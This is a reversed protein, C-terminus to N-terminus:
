PLHMFNAIFQWFHSLNTYWGAINKHLLTALSREVEVKPEKKDDIHELAEQLYPGFRGPDEALMKSVYYAASHGSKRFEQASALHIAATSIAEEKVKNADRENQRKSVKLVTPKLNSNSTLCEFWLVVKVLTYWKDFKGGVKLNM